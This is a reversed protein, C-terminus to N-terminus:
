AQSGFCLSWRVLGLKKPIAGLAHFLRRKWLSPRNSSRMLIPTCFCKCPDITHTKIPVQYDDEEQSVFFSIFPHSMSAFELM